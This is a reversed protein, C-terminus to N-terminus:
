QKVAGALGRVFYGQFALFVLLVPIISIVSGAAFGTWDFSHEGQFAYM